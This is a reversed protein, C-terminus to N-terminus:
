TEGILIVNLSTKMQPRSLIFISIFNGVLGPLAVIVLLMLSIVFEFIPLYIKESDNTPPQQQSSTNPQICLAWGRYYSTFNSDNLLPVLDDNGAAVLENFHLLSDNIMKIAATKEYNGDNIRKM